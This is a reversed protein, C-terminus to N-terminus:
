FMSNVKKKFFAKFTRGEDGGGFYLGSLGSLVTYLADMWKCGANCIIRVNRDMWAQHLLHQLKWLCVALKNYRRVARKTEPLALLAPHHRIVEMPESLRRYLM